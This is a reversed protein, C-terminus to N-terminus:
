RSQHIRLHGLIRTVWYSGTIVPCPVHALSLLFWLVKSFMFRRAYGKDASSNALCFSHSSGFRITITYIYLKYPSRACKMGCCFDLCVACKHIVGTGYKHRTESLYILIELIIITIMRIRM